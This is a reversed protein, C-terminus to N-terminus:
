NEAGIWGSSVAGPSTESCPVGACFYVDREPNGTPRFQDEKGALLFSGYYGVFANVLKIPHCDAGAAVCSPNWEGFHSVFGDATIRGAAPNTDFGPLNDWAAPITGNVEHVATTSNNYRCGAQAAYTLGEDNSCLWM